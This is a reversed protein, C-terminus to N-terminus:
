ICTGTAKSLYKDEIYIECEQQYYFNSKECKVVDTRTQIVKRVELYKMKIMELGHKNM